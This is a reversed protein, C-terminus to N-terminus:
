TAAAKRITELHNRLQEMSGLGLGMPPDKNMSQYVAQIRGLIEQRAAAEALEIGKSSGAALGRTALKDARQEAAALQAARKDESPASGGVPKGVGIIPHKKGTYTAAKQQTQNEDLDKSCACGM